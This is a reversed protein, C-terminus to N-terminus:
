AAVRRRRALWLALVPLGLALLFITSPEPVTLEAEFGHSVGSSDIYFGTLLNGSIGNLSTGQGSGTGASPDNITTYTSGNYLFGHEVGSSDYYAGVITSGSVGLAATGDYGSNNFTHSASPDDITTYSSGNYLFGYFVGAANLFQGVVNSGDVGEAVDLQLAGTGTNPDNLTTFASGNYSFGFGGSSGVYGGVVTGASSVGIAQTGNSGSPDSLTSFTQSSTNYSFGQQAGSSPAYSGVITTGYIGYAHTSVGLGDDLTTYTSGNYIFGNATTGVLYYGVVDTGDNGVAVTGSTALPDNLTTFTYQAASPLASLVCLFAASIFGM